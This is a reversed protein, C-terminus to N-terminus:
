AMISIRLGRQLQANQSGNAHDEGREQTDLFENEGNVRESHADKNSKGVETGGAASASTSKPKTTQSRLGCHARRESDVSSGKGDKGSKKTEEEDTSSSDDEQRVSAVGEQLRIRNSRARSGKKSSCPTTRKGNM